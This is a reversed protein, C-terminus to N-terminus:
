SGRLSEAQEANQELVMIMVRSLGPSITAAADNLWVEEQQKSIFYVQLVKKKKHTTGNPTACLEEDEMAVAHRSKDM